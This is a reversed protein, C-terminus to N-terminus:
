RIPVRPVKRNYDLQEPTLQFGILIEYIRGDADAGYPIQTGNVSKVFQIQRSAGEFVLPVEYIQKKVKAGFRRTVAVFTTVTQTRSQAAPGIEAVGNYALDVSILREDVNYECSTVVKAIEARLVVDTLDRGRGNFLTLHDTGNLVGVTPCPRETTGGEETTSGLGVANFAQESTCGALVGTFAFASLLLAALAKRSRRAPLFSAMQFQMTM